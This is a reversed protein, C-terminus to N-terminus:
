SCPGDPLSITLSARDISMQSHYHEIILLSKVLASVSTASRPAVMTVPVKDVPTACALDTCLAAVTGDKYLIAVTFDDAGGGPHLPVAQGDTSCLMGAYAGTSPNAARTPAFFISVNEVCSGPECVPTFPPQAIVAVLLNIHQPFLVYPCSPSPVCASESRMGTAATPMSVIVSTEAFPKVVHTVVM